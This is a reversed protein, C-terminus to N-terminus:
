KENPIVSVVRNPKFNVVGAVLAFLTADRGIGVNAGPKFGQGKQRVIINGRRVVENAYRKIGRTKPQGDRGNIVHAM